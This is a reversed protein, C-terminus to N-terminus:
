LSQKTVTSTTDLVADTNFWDKTRYTEPGYNVIKTFLTNDQYQRFVIEYGIQGTPTLYENVIYNIDNLSEVPMQLYKDTKNNEEFIQVSQIISDTTVTKDPLDVKTLTLDQALVFNM